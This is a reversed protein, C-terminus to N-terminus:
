HNLLFILCIITGVILIGFFIVYAIWVRNSKKYPSNDKIEKMIDQESVGLKKKLAINEDVLENYNYSNVLTKKYGLQKKLSSNEERLRKIEKEMEAQDIKDMARDVLMTEFLPDYDM